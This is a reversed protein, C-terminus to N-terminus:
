FLLKSRLLVRTNFLSSLFCAKSSQQNIQQNNKSQSIQLNLPVKVELYGWGSEEGMVDKAKASITFTGQQNFTHYIKAEEESAYERTWSTNTGDGWDIYYSIPNRDPDVATFIYKYEVGAKGHTPGSITPTNPPSNSEILGFAHLYGTSITDSSGIYVTGDEAISPSSEVWYGAIKKRWRETGDPNIAVIDGGNDDIYDVGLYITGDASIAPASKGIYKDSGVNFDWKLTGNPYLAKLDYLYGAYITGDNGISPNNPTGAGPYDWKLTGNPYLAYLHGNWSSGIFITSDPAISPSGYIRNGSYFRWRLTGNPYM